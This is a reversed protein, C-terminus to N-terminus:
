SGYRGRDIASTKTAVMAFLAAKEPTVNYNPQREFKTLQPNFFKQNFDQNQFLVTQQTEGRGSFADILNVQGGPQQQQPTFMAPQQLSFATGRQESPTAVRAKKTAEELQARIQEMEKNKQDLEEDYKRKQNALHTQLNTNNAMLLNEFQNRAEQKDPDQTMSLEEWACLKGPQIQGTRRMDDWYERVVKEKEQREVRAREQTEAQARKLKQMSEQFGDDTDMFTKGIRALDNLHARMHGLEIEIAKLADQTSMGTTNVDRPVYARPAPTEVQMQQSDTNNNNNNTVTTQQTTAADSMIRVIVSDQSGPSHTHAPGYCLAFCIKYMRKLKADFEQHGYSRGQGPKYFDRAITADLLQESLQYRLLHTDYAAMGPDPTFAVHMLRKARQGESDHGQALGVSVGWRQTPEFFIGQLLEDYQPHASDLVCKVMLDGVQNIYLDLVHGVVDGLPIYGFNGSNRHDLSIPIRSAGESYFRDITERKEKESLWPGLNGVKYLENGPGDLHPHLRAVFFM